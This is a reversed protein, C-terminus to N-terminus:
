AETPASHGVKSCAHKCSCSPDWLLLCSAHGARNPEKARPTSSSCSCQLPHSSVAPRFQRVILLSDLTSHYLVIGVSSHSHVIDWRRKRGARMCGKMSAGRM